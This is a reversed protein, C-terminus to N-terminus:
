RRVSSPGIASAGIREARIRRCHHICIGITYGLTVGGASDCTAALAQTSWGPYSIEIPIAPNYIYSRVVYDIAAVNVLLTLPVVFKCVRSIVGWTTAFGASVVESAASCFASISKGTDRFCDCTTGNTEDVVTHGQITDDVLSRSHLKRPGTSEHDKWLAVLKKDLDMITQTFANCEKDLRKDSCTEKMCQVVSDLGPIVDEGLLVPFVCVLSLLSVLIRLMHASSPLHKFSWPVTFSVLFLLPRMGRKVDEISYEM